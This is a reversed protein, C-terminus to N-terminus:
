DEDEADDDQDDEDAGYYEAYEARLFELSEAYAAEAKRLSDAPYYEAEDDEISVLVWPEAYAGLPVLQYLEVAYRPTCPASRGIEESDLLHSTAPNRVAAGIAATDDLTIPTM